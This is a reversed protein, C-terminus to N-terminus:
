VDDERGGDICADTRGSEGLSAERRPSRSRQRGPVTSSTASPSPGEPGAAPEGWRPGCRSARGHLRIPLCYPDMQADRLVGVCVGWLEDLVARLVDRCGQVAALRRPEPPLAHEGGARAQLVDRLSRLLVMQAEFVAQVLLLMWEPDVDVGLTQGLFDQLLLRGPRSMGAERLLEGEDQNLRQMLSSVDEAAEGRPSRSRDRGGGGLPRGPLGPDGGASPVDEVAEGVPMSPAALGLDRGVSALARRRATGGSSMSPPVDTSSLAPADAVDASSMESAEVPEPVSVVEQVDETDLDGGYGGLEGFEDVFLAPARRLEPPLSEPDLWANAVREHLGDLVARAMSVVVAHSLQCGAGRSAGDPLVCDRGRLRRGLITSVYDQAEIVNQIAADLVRLCWQVDGAPLDGAPQEGEVISALNGLFLGIASICERRFGLRSLEQAEAPQLRQVLAVDETAPTEMVASSTVEVVGDVPVATESVTEVGPVSSGGSAPVGDVPVATEDVAEMGPVSLGGSAPVDLTGLSAASLTSSAAMDASIEAPVVPADATGVRRRVRQVRFRGTSSSSSSDVGPGDGGAPSRSRSRSTTGVRRVVNVDPHVPIVDIHQVMMRDVVAEMIGCVVRTWQRNWSLSRVRHAAHRPDRVVPWYPVVGSADVRRRLCHVVQEVRRCGDEWVQLWEQLGWRFEPGLDEDSHRQLTYLMERLDRRLSDPLHIEALLEEEANTLQMFGVVDDTCGAPHHVDLQLFAGDDDDDEFLVDWVRPVGPGSWDVLMAPTSTWQEWNAWQHASWMPPGSTWQEWSAWQERPAQNPVGLLLAFNRRAAEAEPSARDVGHRFVAARFSGDEWARARQNRRGQRVPGQGGRQLREESPTRIRSQWM